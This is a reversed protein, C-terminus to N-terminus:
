KPQNLERVVVAPAADGCGGTLKVKLWRQKHDDYGPLIEVAVGACSWCAYANGEGGGVRRPDFKLASGPAWMSIGRRSNAEMGKGPPGARKPPRHLAPGAGGGLRCRDMGREGTHQHLAPTQGVGSGAAASKLHSDEQATSANQDPLSQPTDRGKEQDQGNSGWLKRWAPPPLAANITVDGWMKKKGM